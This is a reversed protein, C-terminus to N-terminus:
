TIRGIGIIGTGTLDIDGTLTVTQLVAADVSNAFSLAASSGSGKYAKSLDFALAYAAFANASNIESGTGNNVQVTHADQDFTVVGGNGEFLKDGLRVVAGWNGIDSGGRDTGSYRTLSWVSGDANLGKGDGLAYVLGNDNNGVIQGVHHYATTIKQGSLDTSGHLRLVGKVLHGVLGGRGDVNDADSALDNSSKLTVNGVNLLGDNMKGVLGGFSANKDTKMDATTASVNEIEVYSSGSIAGIIGGYSTSVNAGGSTSAGIANGSEGKIALTNNMQESQYTGIIGGFNTVAGSVESTMTNATSASISITTKETSTNKLLGFLGGADQGGFIVLKKFQYDSLDCGVTDGKTVLWYGILGGAASTSGAKVTLTDAFSFDTGQEKLQINGDTVSGVLGGANGSDSTVQDVSSGAIKLGADTEMHGVFGGADIDAGTAEVKVNGAGSAKKFEATLSANTDMTNCFLGTHSTTRITLEKTLQNEFTLDAHTDAEMTGILGGIVAESIKDSNLNRLVISAKLTTKGTDLKLKEALLPNMMASTSESISFPITEALEAKTSLANFVAKSTMISYQKASTSADLKFGGEYPHTEDGLGLFSYTSDSLTLQQTLDWGSTTILQITYGTYYEEPKVNSLLIMGDGDTVEITKDNVKLKESLREAETLTLSPNQSDAAEEEEILELSLQVEQEEDITSETQEEKEAPESAIEDSTINEETMEQNNETMSEALVPVASALVMSVTIGAAIIRKVWRNKRLAM